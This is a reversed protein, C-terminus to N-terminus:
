RKGLAKLIQWRWPQAVNLNNGNEDIPECFANYMDQTSPLHKLELHDILDTINLLCLYCNTYIIDSCGSLVINGGLSKECETCKIVQIKYDM